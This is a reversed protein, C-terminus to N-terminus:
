PAAPQTVQASLDVRAFLGPRLRRDQNDIRAEVAFTRTAPDIVQGILVINGRFTEGPYPDFTVVVGRGAVAEKLHREPLSFRVHLSDLEAIVFAISGDSLREGVEVRREAVVGGIPATLVADEIQKRGLQVAAEAAAVAAKAQSHAAVVRDYSAQPISKRNWLEEKRALEQSAELLAAKARELDAESRAVNLRLYDTELRLLPQGRRVTEGELALIAEVRGPWRAVLDSRRPSVLEGTARITNSTEQGAAAAAKLEAAVPAVDAPLEPTTTSAAPPPNKGCGFLGLSLALIMVAGLRLRPPCPDQHPAASPNPDLTRDM